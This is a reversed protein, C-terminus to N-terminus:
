LVSLLKGKPYRETQEIAWEEYLFPIGLKTYVNNKNFGYCQPTLTKQAIYPLQNNLLFRIIHETTDIWYFNIHEHVVRSPMEIEHLVFKPILFQM